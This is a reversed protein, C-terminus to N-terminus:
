AQLLHARLSCTHRTICPSVGARLLLGSFPKTHREGAHAELLRVVPRAVSASTTCRRPQLAPNSCARPTDQWAGFSLNGTENQSPSGAPQGASPKAFRPIPLCPSDAVTFAWCVFLCNFSIFKNESSPQFIFSFFNLAFGECAMSRPRAARAARPECRSM